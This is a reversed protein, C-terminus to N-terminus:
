LYLHRHWYLAQNLFREFNFTEIEPKVEFEKSCDRKWVEDQIYSKTEAAIIEKRSEKNSSVETNDEKDTKVKLEGEM